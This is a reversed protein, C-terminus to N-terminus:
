HDDPFHLYATAAKSPSIDLKERSVVASGRRFIRIATPQKRSAAHGDRRHKAQNGLQLLSKNFSEDASTATCTGRTTEAISISGGGTAM